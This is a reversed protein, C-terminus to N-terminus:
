NWPPYIFYLVIPGYSIFLLLLMCYAYGIFPIKGTKARFREMYIWKAISKWCRLLGPNLDKCDIWKGLIQHDQWHLGLNSLPFVGGFVLMDGLFIITALSSEKKFHCRQLPCTLKRPNPPTFKIGPLWYPLVVRHFNRLFIFALVPLNWCTSQSIAVHIGFNDLVRAVCKGGQKSILFFMELNMVSFLYITLGRVGRSPFFCVIVESGGGFFFWVLTRM